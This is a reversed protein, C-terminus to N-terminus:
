PGRNPVWFFVAKRHLEPRAPENVRNATGIPESQRVRRRLAPPDSADSASPTLRIM